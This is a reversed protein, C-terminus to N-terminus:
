LGTTIEDYTLLVKLTGVASAVGQQTVVVTAAIDTADGAAFTADTQLGTADATITVTDTVAAASYGELADIYFAIQAANQGVTSSGQSVTIPVDHAVGNLTVVCDGSATAAVTVQITTTEAKGPQTLATGQLNLTTGVTMPLDVASLSTLRTIKDGAAELLDAGAIPATQAVTGLQIVTDDGGGTYAATTYDYILVASVLELVFGSGSSAVLLAGSAHGIDGAATGVIEAETLTVEATYQVVNESLQIGGDPKLTADVLADVAVIAAVNAIVDERLDNHFKGRVLVTDDPTKFGSQNNVTVRQSNM